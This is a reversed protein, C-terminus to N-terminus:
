KKLKRLLKGTYRSLPLIKTHFGSLILKFKWLPTIDNVMLRSIRLPDISNKNIKHDFLFAMEINYQKIKEEVTSSFNGNPYAFIRPNLKLKTLKSISHELEQELENNSCKNFMPHSYSHNAIHLYGAEMKKLQMSTLQKRLLLPKSSKIRLKDLYEMRRSNSWNKVEWIKKDGEKTGLYYYIEDWWYPLESDILQTVVFLCAPIKYKQLLPFANEFVSIDGDDFTIILANDPIAELGKFFNLLNTISIVTYNSVIYKLQVEFKASDHIAHYALVKLKTIEYNL